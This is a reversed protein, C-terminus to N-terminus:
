PYIRSKNLFPVIVRCNPGSPIEQTSSPLQSVKKSHWEHSSVHAPLWWSAVQFTKKKYFHLEANFTGLHMMNFAFFACKAYTPLHICVHTISCLKRIQIPWIVGKNVITCLVKFSATILFLLPLIFLHHLITFFFRFLWWFSLRKCSAVLDIFSLRLDSNEYLDM